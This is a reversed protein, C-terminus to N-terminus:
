PTGIREIRAILDDAVLLAKGAVRAMEPLIMWELTWMAGSREQEQVLAQHLGGIQVANFRACTVLLEAPIPNQKHPMASSKGGGALQVEDVGQQAMLCVDQGIKGLAGTLHSLFDGYVVLSQRETHWSTECPSLSLDRAIQAAIQAAETGYAGRDGVPGGFQLREVEPRLRALDDALGLLPRRWTALRDAVTIPLAAQMRTRGMLANQGQERALAEIARTVTTLRTDILQNIRQFALAFASDILDQSTTGIHFTAALEKGLHAKAQAVYVPVPLGDTVIREAMGAIDPQFSQLATVAREALGAELQGVQALARTLAIEFATFHQLMLEDAFVADIQADDFIPAFLANRTTFTTM